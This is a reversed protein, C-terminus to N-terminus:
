GLLGLSKIRKYQEPIEMLCNMAFAPQFNNSKMKKIKNFEVFQFNDFQRQPIRDDFKKMTDWPGDGVGICVISIPYYSAEVIADVTDRVSTCEGDTVLFLIHYAKAKKVIEITERIVPAFNTPGSLNIGSTIQKYRELVDKFGYAVRDPYFPFCSKDTTFSDGFGFAPILHDDDFVEMTEGLIEIVEVYPNKVTMDHLSRNQFSKEGTYLNSKTYDIGFVINSSELGAKRIAMQVEKITKYKDEIPDSASAGCGM